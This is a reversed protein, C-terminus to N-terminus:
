VVILQVVKHSTLTLEEDSWPEDPAYNIVTFILAKKVWM